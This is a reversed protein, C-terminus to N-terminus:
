TIAACADQPATLPSRSDAIGFGQATLYVRLKGILLERPARLVARQAICGCFCQVRAAYKRISRVYVYSYLIPLVRLPRGFCALPEHGSGPIEVAGAQSGIRGRSQRAQSAIVAFRDLEGTLGMFISTPVVIKRACKMNSREFFPMLFVKWRAPAAPIAAASTHWSLYRFNADPWAPVRFGDRIPASITRRSALSPENQTVGRVIHNGANGAPEAVLHKLVRCRAPERM